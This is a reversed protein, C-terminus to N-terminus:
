CISGRFNPLHNEMELIWPPSKDAEMHTKRLTTWTAPMYCSGRLVVRRFFVSDERLCPTTTKTGKGGPGCSVIWGVSIAPFHHDFCLHLTLVQRCFKLWCCIPMKCEQFFSLLKKGRQSHFFMVGFFPYPQHYLSWIRGLPVKMWTLSNM